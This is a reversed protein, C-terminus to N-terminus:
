NLSQNLKIFSIISVSERDSWEMALRKKAEDVEESSLATCVNTLAQPYLSLWSKQGDSEKIRTDVLEYIHDQHTNTVVDHM